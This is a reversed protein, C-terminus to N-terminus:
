LKGEITRVRKILCREVIEVEIEANNAAKQLTLARQKLTYNHM